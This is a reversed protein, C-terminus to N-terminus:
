KLKSSKIEMFFQKVGDNRDTVIKNQQSKVNWKDDEFDIFLDSLNDKISEIDTFNEFLKLYKM